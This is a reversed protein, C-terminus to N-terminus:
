LVSSYRVVSMQYNIYGYQYISMGIVKIYILTYM